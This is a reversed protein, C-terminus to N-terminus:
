TIEPWITFVWVASIRRSHKHNYYQTIRYNNIGKIRDDCLFFTGVNSNYIRYVDYVRKYHACQSYM